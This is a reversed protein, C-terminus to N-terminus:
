KKKTRNKRRSEKQMNKKKKAKSKAKKSSTSFGEPEMFISPKNIEFCAWYKMESIADEILSYHPNDRLENLNAESGNELYDDFDDRAFFFPEILDEDFTREIYEHLEKPALISGNIALETWIYDAEEAANISSKNAFLLSFLEKFYQVIEERSVIGQVVLIILSQLAAGKVYENVEQNEILQKIPDINGHSVSALIRSLDETVVDGTVNLSMDGPVSFFEVILPYALPEKFQALLFLAYLHLLYDPKNFLDELNDKSESLSTLLFPTIAEKEEIARELAQHPFKGTNNELESLIEELQM